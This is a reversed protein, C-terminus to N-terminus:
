ALLELHLLKRQMMKILQKYRSMHCIQEEVFETRRVFKVLQKAYAPFFVLVWACKWPWTQERSMLADFAVFKGISFSLFSGKKFVNGFFRFNWPLKVM